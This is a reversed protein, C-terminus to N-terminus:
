NQDFEPWEFLFSALSKVIELDLKYQDKCDIVHYIFKLRCPDLEVEKKKDVIEFDIIGRVIPFDLGGSFFLSAVPLRFFDAM